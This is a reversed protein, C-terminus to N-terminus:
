FFHEWCSEAILDALITVPEAVFRQQGFALMLALVENLTMEVIAQSLEVVSKELGFEVRIVHPSWCPGLCLAFQDTTLELEKVVDALLHSQKYGKIGVKTPRIALGFKRSRKVGYANSRYVENGTVNENSLLRHHIASKSCGTRGRPNRFCEWRSLSKM